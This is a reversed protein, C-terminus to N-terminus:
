KVIVSFPNILSKIVNQRKQYFLDNEGFCGKWASDDNDM